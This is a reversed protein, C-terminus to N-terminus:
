KMGMWADKTVDTSLTSRGKAKRNYVKIFELAIAYDRDQHNLTQPTAKGRTEIVEYDVGAINTALKDATVKEPKGDSYFAWILFALSRVVDAKVESHTPWIAKYACLARTINIDGYQGMAKKIGTAAKLKLHGGKENLEFGSMTVANTLRVAADVGLTTEAKNIVVSPVTKRFKNIKLFAETEDEVSKSDYVLCEVEEVGGHAAAALRQQGDGVFLRNDDYTRRFIVPIGFYNVNFERNIKKTHASNLFRQYDSYDLELDALKVMEIPANITKPFNIMSKYNVEAVADLLKM